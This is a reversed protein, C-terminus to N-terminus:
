QKIQKGNVYKKTIKGDKDYETGNWPNGDKFEGVYKSGDPNTYTGKGNLLGNKFEGVYKDGNFWTFSGQGHRYGDKLEGLYKRGDPLYQEKVM